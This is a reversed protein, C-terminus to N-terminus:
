KETGCLALDECFQVFIKRRRTSYENHDGRTDKEYFAM